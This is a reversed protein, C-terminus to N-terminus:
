IAKGSMSWDRPMWFLREIEGFLLGVFFADVLFRLAAVSVQIVTNQQDAVSGILLSALLVPEDFVTPTGAPALLTVHLDGGLM